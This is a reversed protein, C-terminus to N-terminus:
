SLVIRHTVPHTGTLSVFLVASVPPHRRATHTVTMAGLLRRGAVTLHAVLLTTTAPRASWRSMALVVLEHRAVTKVVLRTVTRGDVHVTERVRQRVRVVHVQQIRAFGSCTANRCSLKLRLRDGPLLVAADAPIVVKPVAAVLFTQASTFTVTVRDATTVTGAAVPGKPTLEYVVDGVAIRSGAITLSVPATASPTREGPALWAVTFSVLYDQGKPVPRALAAPNTVPYLSVTTQDPLAGAPVLLTASAGDLSEVLRTPSGALTTATSPTGLDASPVGSPPPASAPTASVGTGSGSSTGGGSSTGSGSSTGGTNPSTVTWSFTTSGTAGTSDSASVTVTYSGASSPTGSIVGTSSSISLGPPLGSATYSLAAGGSDSGAITLSVPSSTSSSQSGPNTLTVTNPSTVTWTFTTSGTAGTTYDDLFVSVSYTGATSLTGSIVCDWSTASVQGTAVSLDLLGSNVACQDLGGTSDSAAVTLSVSSGAVGTQNGPNTLTVANPGTVTWTFTPSQELSGDPETAAVTVNYTGDTNPTGTIEGNYNVLLGPPLGSASYSVAADGSSTASIYLGASSSTTSSQDAPSAFLLADSAQVVNWTFSDSASAGTSATATITVASTGTATATGSVVGTSTDISLGSPLGSASYTIPAGSQATAPFALDVTGDLPTSQDASSALSVSDYVNWSFFTTGLNGSADKVQVTVSSNGLTTPTGSIAGTTTNLSLGPPLGSASYSLPTSTDVATVQVRAAALALTSQDGPSSVDVVGAAPAGGSLVPEAVECGNATNSWLAQVAFSGTSLAIDQMGGPQGYPIYDCKDAIELGSADTWGSRPQPDTLTEAYEHVATSTLGDLVGASGANVWNAGCNTGADPVYPMNVFYLDEGSYSPTVTYGFEPDTTNDHWACFGSNPFGDPNTGSPSVIFYIANANASQSANGFHAAAAIAEQALGSGTSGAWTSSDYWVGALAGGAPYGVSAAGAPCSTAGTAVPVSVTTDCYETTTGSWTEGGTGLGAFLAQLAPAVGDADGSFTVYGASNTSETGWQSGWFVLYVRPTGTIVPGGGYSVPGPSASAYTLTASARVGPFLGPHARVYARTPMMGLRWGAPLTVRSRVPMTAASSRSVVVTASFAFVAALALVLLRSARLVRLRAFARASARRGGATSGASVEEKASVAVMVVGFVVLGDLGM